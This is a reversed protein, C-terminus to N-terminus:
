SNQGARWAKMKRSVASGFARMQDECFIYAPKIVEEPNRYLAAGSFHFIKWGLRQLDADRRDRLIVQDKTREHFEHGDLEFGIAPMEIDPEFQMSNCLTEGDPVVRFDLRYIKDAAKVEYQPELQLLDAMAPTGWCYVARLAIWWARFIYELPSQCIPYNHAEELTEEMDMQLCTQYAGLVYAQAAELQDTVFKSNRWNKDTM